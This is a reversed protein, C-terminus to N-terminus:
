SGLADRRRKGEDLLMSLQREDENDLARQFLDLRERLATLADRVADRNQSLIPTWLSPDGAAIRTTDRFGSAALGRLEDPLVGALASAVLHPLHSTLAMARDHDEPRMTCVRAGLHKWFDSIKQLAGADTSTTPTLVTIRDEFLRVDAHEVGNKESGALPHGGVYHVNEPMSQEIARVIASKTSGTDTIITGPRCQSGVAVVGAAIQDVPTCFVVLDSERVAAESATFGTDIAGAASARALAADSRGVGLVRRVLNRQRAALGISGGILGVGVITLTDFLMVIRHNYRCAMM